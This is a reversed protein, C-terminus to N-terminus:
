IRKTMGYNVTITFTEDDDLVRARCERDVMWNYSVRSYVWEGNELKYLKTPGFCYVALSKQNDFRFFQNKKLGLKKRILFTILREM